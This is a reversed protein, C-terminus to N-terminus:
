KMAARILAATDTHREEEAMNLATDGDADQAYVDAGAKLLTDVVETRGEDAAYMLATKGEKDTKNIDAGHRLLRAVAEQQGKKAAVMLPTEGDKNASDVSTGDALLQELQSEGSYASRLVARQAAKGSLAVVPASSAASARRLVDATDAHREEEAMTLATEGEKDRAQPDAGAALLLRVVETHGEDAAYMLPTRGEADRQNVQAGHKLLLQVADTRGKDAAKMLATKGESNAADVSAGSNLLETLKHEGAHVAHMVAKHFESHAASALGPLSFFATLAAIQTLTSHPFPM